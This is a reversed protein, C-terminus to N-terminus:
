KGAGNRGIVGVVEGMKISFSVDKLAWFLETQNPAGRFWSAPNRLTNELSHRLGAVWKEQHILPYCKSLNSVNIINESM